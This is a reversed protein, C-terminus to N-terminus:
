KEVIIAYIGGRIEVLRYKKAEVSNKHKRNSPLELVNRWRQIITRSVGLEHAIEADTKGQQWLKFADEDTYRKRNKHSTSPPKKQSPITQNPNYTLAKYEGYSLGMARAKAAEEALIGM